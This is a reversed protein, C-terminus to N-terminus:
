NDTSGFGGDSRRTEGISDSWSWIPNMFYQKRLILQCCKFPFEIDPSNPSVKTLAVYLNGTYSTDIIGISNSVMYGSKSLSSRPVIEVYYGFPVRIQLGTDYLATVDNLRKHENLVTVDYGIDSIRSHSPIVANDNTKYFFCDIKPVFAKYVKYNESTTVIPNKYIIELFEYVNVNVLELMNYYLTFPIGIHKQFMEVMIPETCNIALRDFKICDSSNIYGQLFEIFEDKSINYLCSKGLINTIAYAVGINYNKM